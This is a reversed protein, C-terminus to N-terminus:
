GTLGEEGGTGELAPLYVTFRSGRGVRSFVRVFGGHARVIGSVASLGLGTGEGAKKTTFFPDFVRGLLEPPIGTGTDTVSFAVYRGARADPDFRAVREDLTLDKVKLTLTGGEPMADRANVLLNMMVQQLATPDALVPRTERVPIAFLVEITDPITKAAIRLVEALLSPVSLSVREGGGGRSFLLIKKIMNAGRRASSALVELMQRTSEKMEPFELPLTRAIALIPTFINNLDHAIGGALTGLSELRQARYFREELRKKETIDTNVMTITRYGAESKRSDFTSYFCRISGDQCRFRYEVTSHHGAALDAFSAPLRERDEPLVRSIWLTKDAMFEAETYGFLAECGPSYYEYEWDGDDFVRFSAIAVIQSQLVDKLRAESDRLAFELRKYDTVDIVVTRTM